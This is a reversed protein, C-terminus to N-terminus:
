SHLTLIGILIQIANDKDIEQSQCTNNRLKSNFEKEHIQM